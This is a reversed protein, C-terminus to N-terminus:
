GSSGPSEMRSFVALVIGIQRTRDRKEPPLQNSLVVIFIVNDIGLVIELVLLTLLAVLNEATFLEM